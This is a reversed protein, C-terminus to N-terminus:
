GGFTGLVEAPVTRMSSYHLNFITHSVWHLCDRRKQLTRLPRHRPRHFAQASRTWTQCTHCREKPCFRHLHSSSRSFYHVFCTHAILVQFCTGSGALTTTQFILDKPVRKWLQCTSRKCCSTTTTGDAGAGRRTGDCCSEFAGQEQVRLAQVAQKQVGLAQYAQEQARSVQPGSGVNQRASHISDQQWVKPGEPMPLSAGGWGSVSPIIAKAPSVGRLLDDMLYCGTQQACQRM